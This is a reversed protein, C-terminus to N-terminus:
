CMSMLACYSYFAPFLICWKCICITPLLQDLGLAAKYRRVSHHYPISWIINMDKMLYINIYRRVMASRDYLFVLGKKM